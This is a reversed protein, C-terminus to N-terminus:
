SQDDNEMANEDDNKDNHDEDNQIETTDEPGQCPQRNETADNNLIGPIKMVMPMMM